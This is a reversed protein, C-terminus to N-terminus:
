PRSSPPRKLWKRLRLLQDAVLGVALLVLLTVVVATGMGEDKMMQKLRAPGPPFRIRTLEIDSWITRGAIEGPPPGM